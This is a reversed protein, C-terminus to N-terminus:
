KKNLYYTFVYFMALTTGVIGGTVIAGELARLNDKSLYEKFYEGAKVIGPSVTTVAIIHDLNKRVFGLSSQASTEVM